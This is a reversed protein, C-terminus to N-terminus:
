SRRRRLFLPAALVLALAGFGADCGGGGSSSVRGPVGVTVEITTTATREGNTGTVTITYSGAALADVTLTDGNVDLALGDESGTTVAATYAVTAGLFNSGLTVEQDPAAPSVFTLTSPDATITFPSTTEPRVTVNITETDTDTGNTGTVTVVYTGAASPTLTLTSGSVAANLGTSPSVAATYTVTAGLFNSGLTVTKAAATPSDFTVTKDSVTIEFGEEGYVTVNITETDTDTGNTGTVTVVYTGEASPTLTLTNGSVAANLGTSPSVAATYTVTAGLFNSGLTVTKAAATASDFTVTKDSVTIEFRGPVSGVTITLDATAQGAAGRDDQAIVKVTYTGAETPNTVTVVGTTENITVWSPAGDSLSYKVTGQADAATATVTGTGAVMVSLAEPSLTLKLDAPKANYKVNWKYYVPENEANYAEVFVTAETGNELNGAVQAFKVGVEYGETEETTGPITTLWGPLYVSAADATVGPEFNVVYAADVADHSGAAPELSKAAAAIDEDEAEVTFSVEVPGAAAEGATAKVTFTQEIDNGDSDQAHKAVGEVYFKGGATYSYLKNQTGDTLEWVVDAKAGAASFVATYTRGDIPSSDFGNSDVTIEFEPESVVVTVKRSYAGDNVNVTYEYSGAAVGAANATLTYTNGSVSGTLLGPIGEPTFSWTVVTADDSVFTLTATETAGVLVNITVDDVPEIHPEVPDMVTIQFTYLKHPSTTANDGVYALVQFDYTKAEVGSLNGTQYSITGGNGYFGLWSPLGYPILKIDNPNVNEGFVGPDIDYVGQVSKGGKSVINDLEPAAIRDAEAVESHLTFAVPVTIIEGTSDIRKAKLALGKEANFASGTTGLLKVPLSVIAGETNVTLTFGEDIETATATRKLYDGDYRVVVLDTVRAEKGQADYMYYTGTEAKVNWQYTGNVLEPTSTNTEYTARRVGEVKFSAEADASVTFDTDGVAETKASSFQTGTDPPTVGERVLTLERFAPVVGDLWTAKGSTVNVLYLALRVKVPKEGSYSTGILRIFQEDEVVEFEANVTIDDSVYKRNGNDVITALTTLATIDSVNEVSSAMGEDYTFFVPCGQILYKETGLGLVYRVDNNEDVERQITVEEDRYMIKFPVRITFDHGYGLGFDDGGRMFYWDGLTVLAIEDRNEVTVGHTDTKDSPIRFLFFRNYPTVFDSTYNGGEGAEAGIVKFRKAITTFEHTDYATLDPKVRVFVQGRGSYGAFEDRALTLDGKVTVAYEGAENDWRNRAGVQTTFATYNDMFGKLPYDLTSNITPGNIRGNYTFAFGNVFGNAGDYWGEDSIFDEDAPYENLLRIEEISEQTILNAHVPCLITIYHSAFRFARYANTIGHNLVGDPDLTAVDIAPSFTGSSPEFTLHGGVVAGRDIELKADHRVMISNNNAVPYYEAGGDGTFRVDSKTMIEIQHVKDTVDEAVGNGTVTTGDIVIRSPQETGNIRLVYIGKAPNAYNVPFDKNTGKNAYLQLNSINATLRPGIAKTDRNVGLVNADLATYDRPATNAVANTVASVIAANANKTDNDYDLVVIAGMDAYSSSGDVKLGNLNIESNRASPIFNLKGVTLKSYAVPANVSGNENFNAAGPRHGRLWVNGVGDLNTDANVNFQAPGYIILNEINVTADKFLRRSYPDEASSAVYLGVNAHTGTITGEFDIYSRAYADNNIDAVDDVTLVDDNVDLTETVGLPKTLILVARDQSARFDTATNNIEITGTGAIMGASFGGNDVVVKGTSAIDLVTKRANIIIGNNLTIFDEYPYIENEGMVIAHDKFTATGAVTFKFPRDDQVQRMSGTNAIFFAGSSVDVVPIIAGDNDSQWSPKSALELTGAQVNIGTLTKPLSGDYINGVLNLIDFHASSDSLTLKGAGSKTVYTKGDGDDDPVIIKGYLTMDSLVKITGDVQLVTGPATGDVVDSGNYADWRDRLDHITGSPLDFTLTGGPDVDVTLNDGRLAWTNRIILEGDAAVTYTSAAANDSYGSPYNKKADEGESFIEAERDFMVTTDALVTINATLQQGNSLDDNVRFPVNIELDCGAAFNPGADALVNIDALANANANEASCDIMIASNTSRKELRFKVRNNKSVPVVVGSSNRVVTPWTVVWLGGTGRAPSDTPYPTPVVFTAESVTGLNNVDMVINDIWPAGFIAGAVDSTTTSYTDVFTYSGNLNINLNGADDFYGAPVTEADDAYVINGDADFAVTASLADLNGDNDTDINPAIAAGTGAPDTIGSDLVGDLNTDYAIITNPTLRYTPLAAAFASSVGFIVVLVSLLFVRLNKSM